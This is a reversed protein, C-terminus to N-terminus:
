PALRSRNWKGDPAMRYVIRDHLRSTRGQWFEFLEPRLRYGGWFGPLPLDETQRYKKELEAVRNELIERSAIEESQPSAWAGIQSGKPRSQFYQRSLEPDIKEVLGEIRVQRQLPLWLFLLSAFPNAKLERGKRSEYNSYFIFGEEDLGKLLVTRSSPKGETTATSLVMANPEPLNAKKVAEFWSEFQRFPDPEVLEMKLASQQYDERMDSVDLLM